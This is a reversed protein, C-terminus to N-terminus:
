LDGVGFERLQHFIVVCEKNGARRGLRKEAHVGLTAVIAVDIGVVFHRSTHLCHLTELRM